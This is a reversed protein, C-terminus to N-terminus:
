PTASKDVSTKSGILIILSVAMTTIAEIISSLRSPEWRLVSITISAVCLAIFLICASVGAGKKRSPAMYICFQHACVVAAGSALTKIVYYLFDGNQVGPHVFYNFSWKFMVYLLWYSAIFAIITGPLLGIWRLVNILKNKTTDM